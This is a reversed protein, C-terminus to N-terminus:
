AATSLPVRCGCYTASDSASAICYQACPIPGCGCSSTVAQGLPCAIAPCITPGPKITSKTTTITTIPVPTPCGCREIGTADYICFQEACIPGCGCTPAPLARAALPCAIEPCAILALASPAVLLAVTLSAVAKAVISHM